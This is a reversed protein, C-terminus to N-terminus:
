FKKGGLLHLHIHNIVQGGDAKVNFSLRYGKEAVGLKRAMKQAVLIMKGLLAQDIEEAHDITDIHKKPVILIHVPASPKIDPFAIIEKDEYIIRAPLERNVIKCFICDKM